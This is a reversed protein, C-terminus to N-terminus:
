KGRETPQFNLKAAQAHKVIRKRLRNALPEFTHQVRAYPPPEDQFLASPDLGNPKYRELVYAVCHHLCDTEDGHIPGDQLAPALAMFVDAKSAHRVVVGTELEMAVQELRDKFVITKMWDPCPLEGFAAQHLIVPGLLFRYQEQTFASHIALSMVIAEHPMGLDVMLAM